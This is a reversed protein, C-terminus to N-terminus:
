EPQETHYVRIIPFNLKRFIMLSYNMMQMAFEQDEKSMMPMFESQVDIILLAPNMSRKEKLDQSFASVAFSLLLIIAFTIKKM